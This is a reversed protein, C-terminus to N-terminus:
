VDRRDEGAPSCKIVDGFGAIEKTFSEPSHISTSALLWLVPVGAACRPGFPTKIGRTSLEQLYSVVGGDGDTYVIVLSPRLAKPTKLLEIFVASFETGGRGVFTDLTGKYPHRKKIEVDQHIVEIGAGRSQIGKLEANVAALETQMSGSTDVVFWVQLRRRRKYGLHEPNRRSPRYLTPQRRCTRLRSETRRLLAQWPVVAGRNLQTVCEQADASDLGRCHKGRRDAQKGAEIIDRVAEDAVASDAGDSLESGDALKSASKQIAKQELLLCYEEMTLNAAFGYDVIDVPQWADKSPPLDREANYKDWEASITKLGARVPALDIYQNVVMDAAYNVIQKGAYGYKAGYHKALEIGRRGLHGFAIHLVEHKLIEVQAAESLQNFWFSNVTIYLDGTKTVGAYALLHDPDDVALYRVKQLMVAYAVDRNLLMGYILREAYDRNEHM